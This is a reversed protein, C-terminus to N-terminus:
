LKSATTQAQLYKTTFIEASDSEIPESVLYGQIMDCGHQILYQFQEKTEIGEAIIKFNLEHGLTIIANTIVSSEKDSPLNKIFERDIKLYTIPFKQLYGLSSYGIGFDDIAIRIGMKDLENLKETVEETNDIFVSETIEVVFSKSDVGAELLANKLSDLFNTANFQSASFNVSIFGPDFGMEKWQKYTQLALKLIEEGLVFILNVKEAIPIFTMPLMLGFRPHQWRVLAEVGVIKSSKLDIIPQYFVKFEHKKIADHLDNEIQLEEKVILQSLGTFFHYQNGGAKKSIYMAIEANSVLEEVSTGDQPYISVGISGTFQFRQNKIVEVESIISLIVAIIKKLTAINHFESIIFVFEDGSFRSIFDTKRLNSEFKNALSCLFLDGAEHGFVDNINKFRDIDLFLIALQKNHWKAAALLHELIENFLSRNALGTLSDHHAQHVLENEEARLKLEIKKRQLVEDVLNKNAEELRALHQALDNNSKNLADLMSNITRSIDSIEDKGSQDIYVFKKNALDINAVERTLRLLPTVVILKNLLWLGLLGIFGIFFLVFIFYNITKLGQNLISRNYKVSFIGIPKGYIDKLLSFGYIENKNKPLLYHANKQLKEYIDNLWPSTKAENIPYLSLPHAAIKSLFDMRKKDLFNAMILAGAAPDKGDSRLIAHSAVILFGEKLKLMGVVSSNIDRSTTLLSNPMIYPKIGEPMPVFEKKELDYFRGYRYNGHKDFFIMMNLRANDFTEEVLNSKIFDNNLDSVFKYADDWVAWDSNFVAVENYISFLADDIGQLNNEILKNEIKKYDNQLINNSFIYILFIILTWSLVFVISIKKQIKM